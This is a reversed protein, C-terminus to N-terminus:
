PPELPGAQFDTRGSTLEPKGKLSEPSSFHVGSL